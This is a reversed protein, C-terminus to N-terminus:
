PEANIKPTAQDKKAADDKLKLTDMMVPAQVGPAVTDRNGGASPPQVNTKEEPDKIGARSRIEVVNSLVKAYLSDMMAPREKYWAITENFTEFGLKHHKLISIYFASLSDYNKEFRNRVSDGIGQSYVEALHMDTLVKVM